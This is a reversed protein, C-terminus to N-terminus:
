KSDFPNSIKQNTIFELDTLSLLFNILDEKENATLSFPKILNTEKNSPNKGGSMYHNIVKGLADRACAESYIGIAPRLSLDCHISGDHMYPYTLAINRLSPTRFKGIDGSKETLEFLGRENLPLNNYDLTSKIGNDHYKGIDINSGEFSTSDSFNFDTHCKSCNTIKSNFLFLGNKQSESLNGEQNQFFYKDYPSNGSILIRVFSSLSYRINQENINEIGGGFAKNFLDLYKSDAKIREIYDTEGLGLEVPTTGFLPLRVQQELTKLNSNMWTLRSMYATNTLGQSNRPHSIGTSGIGVTGGDSFALSQLHCTACSQTFNGSLRKDYFLFKGLEVKSESMPNTSPVKPVPFGVPLNWNFNVSKELSLLSLLLIKNSSNSNKDHNCGSFNILFALVLIGSIKKIIYNYLINIIISIMKKCLKLVINM